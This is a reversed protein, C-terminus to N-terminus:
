RASPLHNRYVLWRRSICGQDKRVFSLLSVSMVNEETDGPLHNRYFGFGGEEHIAKPRDCLLCLLCVKYMTSIDKHNKVQFINKVFWGGEKGNWGVGVSVCERPQSVVVDFINRCFLVVMVSIFICACIFYVRRGKGGFFVVEEGYM